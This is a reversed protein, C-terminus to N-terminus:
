FDGAVMHRKALRVYHEASYQLHELEKDELKRVPKAPVGVYLTGSELVKGPTVLSGAGIVVNSNVVAGDLVRAGMGVLVRSHITCAHITAQHGVTVDDGLSAAFGGPSFPGDHTVHIVAGDQVNSRAGITVSNVDGRIVAYPWVSSDAGLRVDGLILATDDVFVGEALQPANGEFVRIM